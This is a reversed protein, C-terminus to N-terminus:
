EWLGPRNSNSAFRKHIFSQWSQFLVCLAIESIIDQLSFIMFYLIRHSHLQYESVRGSHSVWLLAWCPSHPNAFTQSEDGPFVFRLMLFCVQVYVRFGWIARCSLFSFSSLCCLAAKILSICQYNLSLLKLLMLFFTLFAYQDKFIFHLM